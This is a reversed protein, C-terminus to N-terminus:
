RVGKYWFLGVLRREYPKTFRTIRSTNNRPIHLFETESIFTILHPTEGQFQVVGVVGLSPKKVPVCLRKVENVLLGHALRTFAREECYNYPYPINIGRIVKQAMVALKACDVCGDAFGWSLGILENVNDNLM